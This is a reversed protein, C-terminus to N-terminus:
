EDDNGRGAYLDFRTTTGSLTGSRGPAISPAKAPRKVVVRIAAARRAQRLLDLDDADASPPRQGTVARLWAAGRRKAATGKRPYMPDLYVVDPGRGLSRLVSRADAHVLTLRGALETESPGTARTLRDIADELLAALLPDREIMTVHMGARALAAADAGFGATADVVSLDRASRKGRVARVVPEGGPRSAALDVIWPEAGAQPGSGPRLGLGRPGLHAHVAAPGPGCPAGLRRAWRAAAEDFGPEATVRLRPGVQQGHGSTTEARDDVNVGRRYRRPASRATAPPTRGTAGISREFTRLFVRKPISRRRARLDRIWRGSRILAKSVM